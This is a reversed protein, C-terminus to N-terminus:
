RRGDLYIYKGNEQLIPMGNEQLLAYNYALKETGDNSIFKGAAVGGYGQQVDKYIPSQNGRRKM